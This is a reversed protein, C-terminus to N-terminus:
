THISCGNPNAGHELLLGINEDRQREIARLLPTTWKETHSIYPDTAQNLIASKIDEGDLLQIRELLLRLISSDDLGAAAILPGDEGESRMVLSKYIEEASWDREVTEYKTYQSIDPDEM